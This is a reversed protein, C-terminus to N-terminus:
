APIRPWARAYRIIQALAAVEALAVLTAYVAWSEGVANGVSVAIYVSAVIVNTTRNARAPLTLSLAVMLIPGLMLTLAGVAWVQTIEFQWVTGALIDEIVGPKFFGLIDAYVYVFMLSAWLAALKLPAPTSVPELATAGAAGTQATRTGDQDIPDTRRGSVPPRGLDRTDSM